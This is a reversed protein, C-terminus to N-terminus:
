STPRSPRLTAPKTRSAAPGCRLWEAHRIHIHAFAAADQNAAHYLAHPKPWPHPTQRLLCPQGAPDEIVALPHGDLDEARRSREISENGAKRLRWRRRANVTPLNLCNGVLIINAFEDDRRAPGRALRATAHRDRGVDGGAGVTQGLDFIRVGTAKVIRQGIAGLAPRTEGNRALDGIVPNM